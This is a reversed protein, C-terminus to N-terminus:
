MTRKITNPEEVKENNELSYYENCLIKYLKQLEVLRKAQKYLYNMTDEDKSEIAAIVDDPDIKSQSIFGIERITNPNLNLLEDRTKSDSKFLSNILERTERSIAM